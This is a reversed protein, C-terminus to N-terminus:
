APPTPPSQGNADGENPVATLAQKPAPKPAEKPILPSIPEEMIGLKVLWFKGIVKPVAWWKYFHRVFELLMRQAQAEGGIKVDYNDSRMKSIDVARKQFEIDLFQFANM